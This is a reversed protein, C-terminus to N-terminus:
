RAGYGTDSWRLEASRAWEIGLAARLADAVYASVSAARKEAVARRASEVLEDPLTVAIKTTM